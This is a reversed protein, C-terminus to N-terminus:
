FKRMGGNRALAVSSLSIVGALSGIGSIVLKRKNM